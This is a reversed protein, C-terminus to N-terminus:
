FRTWTDYLAVGGCVCVCVCIGLRSCRATSLPAAQLGAGVGPPPSAVGPARRRVAEAQAWPSVLLLRHAWRRAAQRLRRQVHQRRRWRAGERVRPKQGGPPPGAVGQAPPEQGGAGVQGGSGVQGGAGVQDQEAAKKRPPLQEHATARPVRQSAAENALPTPVSRGPRDRPPPARPRGGPPRRLPLRGPCLQRRHRPRPRMGVEQAEATAGAAETRRSSSPM